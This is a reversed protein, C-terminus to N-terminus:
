EAKLQEKIEAPVTIIEEGSDPDIFGLNVNKFEQGGIKFLQEKVRRRTTIAYVLCEKLEEKTFEGHPYIIKLLGSVTKRVAIIDRQNMESNYKFHKEIADAFTKKRMEKFWEALYDSIFGYSNTFYEPKMKPVEWGPIYSHFRDIFAADIMQDPLPELLHRTKATEVPDGDINGLFVLSANANIHEKGRAFAGNAMYGKMIQVTDKDRMDMGGVEDFAILDWMGILGVVRTVMNYFLNAVTSKGESLLISNPSIEDYIYSKGTGRPGLELLNYNNEVFPIMRAIFHWKAEAPLTEPEYGASKLLADMWEVKTFKVRELLLSDINIGPMQIPKLDSIIFPSVNSEPDHFYTLNVICWIGGALLRDYKKIFDTQVEVNKLGLNSLVAEYLDKKENLKVTVKDIVKYSGRERIRSKIREAEDPRVYNQELIQKVREKGEEITQDDDSACYQALLYELVFVPVNIGSRLSKTLDKRVVKGPFSDFLKKDLGQLM